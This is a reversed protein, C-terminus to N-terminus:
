TFVDKIENRCGRIKRRNEFKGMNGKKDGTANKGIGRKPLALLAHQVTNQTMKTKRNIKGGMNCDQKM